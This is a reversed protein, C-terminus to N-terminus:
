VFVILLNVFLLAIRQGNLTAIQLRNRFNRLDWKPADALAHVSNGDPETNSHTLHLKQARRPM